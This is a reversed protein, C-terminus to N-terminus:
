FRGANYDAIAQRIQEPTNMVFPGYRAVPQDLPRAAALLLRAPAAGGKLVIREGPGLVALTGRSVPSAAEGIQAEGDFPYVFANHEPPLDLAFSGGPALAVDIFRPDTAIGRVPGEIAGIKGAVVRLRAGGPQDIIPVAEPEFEQYRPVTMKEAAPLDVWLQFGWMLGNEQEPMESHVIGRGATMWQVSGARLLGSHGHNDAHRIRGALMYTVTEFGRHPHDPFGGIYDAGEASRFEDLLLFPDLADLARNGILRTLKVGDGDSTPQGKVLRLVQRAESAQDRM